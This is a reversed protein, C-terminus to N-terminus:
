RWIYSHTKVTTEFPEMEKERGAENDNYIPNIEVYFNIGNYRVILIGESPNSMATEFGKVNNLIDNVKNTVDYNRNDM